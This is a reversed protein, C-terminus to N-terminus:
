VHQVSKDRSAYPRAHLQSVGVYVFIVKIYFYKVETVLHGVHVLNMHMCARGHHEHHWAGVFYIFIGRTSGLSSCADCTNVM